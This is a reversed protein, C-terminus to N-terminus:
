LLFYLLFTGFQVPRLLTILTQDVDLWSEHVFVLSQLALELAKILDVHLFVTVKVVQLVLKIFEVL